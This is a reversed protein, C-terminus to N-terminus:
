DASQHFMNLNETTARAAALERPKGHNKWPKEHKEMPKEINESSRNPKLDGKPSKFCFMELNRPQAAVLFNGTELPLKILYAPISGPTM